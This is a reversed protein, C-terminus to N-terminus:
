GREFFPTLEAALGPAAALVTPGSGGLGPLLAVDCGSETAVLRAAAYDWVKLGAQYFADLRGAAVWCLDFAGAGSRRLDGVRPLLAGLLEIEAARIGADHAFGTGVVAERLSPVPRAALRVGDLTAGRGAVASWHEDHAVDYLAAAVPRGSRTAPDYDAWVGVSVGFPPLRHVFNTTGDLPDLIWTYGSRSPRDHGEEGVIGDLPRVQDIAEVLWQESARDAETVLDSVAGKHEVVLTSRGAFERLLRGARQALGDAIAGLEAADTTTDDHLTTNV